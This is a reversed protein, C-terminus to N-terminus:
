SAMELCKNQSTAGRCPLMRLSVRRLWVRPACVHTTRCQRCRKEKAKGEQSRRLKVCHRLNRREILGFALRRGPMEVARCLKKLLRQISIWVVHIRQAAESVRQDCLAVPSGRNLRQLMQILELGVVSSTNKLQALHFAPQCAM